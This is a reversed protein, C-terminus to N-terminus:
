TGNGPVQQVVNDQYWQETLQVAKGVFNDFYPLLSNGASSESGTIFRFGHLVSRSTAKGGLFAVTYTVPLGKKDPLDYVGARAFVREDLEDVLQLFWSPSAIGFVAIPIAPVQGSGRRGVTGDRCLQMSLACEGGAEIEIRIEEIEDATM